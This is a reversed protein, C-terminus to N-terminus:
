TLRAASSIKSHAVAPRPGVRDPCDRQRDDGGGPPLKTEGVLPRPGRAMLDDRYFTIDLTGTPIDQGTIERLLSALRDAVHIGRRRIGILALDDPGRNREVIEHAIRTLAHGIRDAAMVVPM